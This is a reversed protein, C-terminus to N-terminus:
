TKFHEVFKTSFVLQRTTAELAFLRAWVSAESHLYTFLHEVIMRHPILILIYYISICMECM